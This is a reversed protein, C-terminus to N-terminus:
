PLRATPIVSHATRSNGNPKLSSMRPREVTGTSTIFTHEGTAYILEAAIDDDIPAKLDALLIESKIENM